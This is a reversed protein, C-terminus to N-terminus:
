GHKNEWTFVQIIHTLLDSEFNIFKIGLVVVKASSVATTAMSLSGAM